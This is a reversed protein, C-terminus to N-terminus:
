ADRVQPLTNTNADIHYGGIPKYSQPLKPSLGLSVHSNGLILSANYM